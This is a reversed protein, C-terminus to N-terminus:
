WIDKIEPVLPLKGVHTLHSLGGSYQFTRLGPYCKKKRFCYTCLTSLKMNPSTKSQPIPAAAPSIPPMPGLVMDKKHQIEAEKHPLRDTFDHVDLCL